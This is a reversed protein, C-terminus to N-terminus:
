RRRSTPARLERVHLGLARRHRAPVQAGEVHAVVRALAEVLAALELGEEARQAPEHSSITAGPRPSRASSRRAEVGGRRARPARPPRAPTAAVPRHGERERKWSASSCAINPGAAVCCASGPEYGASSGPRTRAPGAARPRAACGTGRGRAAPRRGARGRARSRARRGGARRPARARPAARVDRVERAEVDHAQGVDEVPGVVGEHRAPGGDQGRLEAGPRATTTRWSLLRRSTRRKKPSAKSKSSAGRRRDATARGSGRRRACRPRSAGGTLTWKAKTARRRARGRRRPGARWRAAGRLVGDAVAGVGEGDVVARM